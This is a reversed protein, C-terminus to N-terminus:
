PQPPFQKAKVAMWYSSQRVLKAADAPKALLPKLAEEAFVRNQSGKALVVAGQKLHQKIYKGAEYPSLFKEVHCGRAEAAPALYTVADPGLAIVLDLKHPDCYTGVINHAEPSYDGLENMSGLLAIRQTTHAAYLVDLAATVAVPSANYTDDIITADQVGPLLQMRGASAQITAAGKTIEAMTLGLAHAAAVAALAIKAGHAGLLPITLDLQKGALTFTVHQGAFGADRQEAVRYVAHSDFGYAQYSKGKLYRAPTDDVNILTTAAYDLIALEERAVADLTGFYEMHEPTIATVIAVDPHVYAFERMFGPGDTGLEAIVVDYPYTGRIIRENQLMIRVWAPVNFIGPETHGFFILPVTVRDNYNGEQWRVRRSGQLVMAVATKTSTKGVSGGVAVVKFAHRKRLRRVQHELVQCLVHRGLAKPQLLWAGLITIPLLHAWVLPGALLLALGLQWGGALGGFVDRGIIFVSCLVQLFLAGITLRWALRETRSFAAPSAAVKSFDTTQWYDAYYRGLNGQSRSYLTTIKAPYHPSYLSLLGRIM